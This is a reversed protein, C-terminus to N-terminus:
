SEDKLFYFPKGYTFNTVLYPASLYWDVHKTYQVTDIVESNCFSLMSFFMVGLNANMKAIQYKHYEETEFSKDCNKCIRFGVYNDYAFERYKKM